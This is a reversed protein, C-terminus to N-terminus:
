YVWKGSAYRFIETVETAEVVSPPNAAAESTSAGTQRYLLERYTIKGVPVAKPDHNANMHCTHEPSYGVFEGLVGSPGVKWRVGARNDRERAELKKMWELCFSRFKSEVAPDDARASGVTIAMLGLLIVGRKM